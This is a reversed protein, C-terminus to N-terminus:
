LVVAVDKRWNLWVKRPQDFGTGSGNINQSSVAVPREVGDITVYFHSREGLYAANQLFGSVSHAAEPDHADAMQLKEPRIAVQVVDGVGYTTQRKPAVIEGLGKTDITLDSGSEATVVGDFFNMTGIFSAVERNHPTEYLGTPTDLQLLKGGQMVAIRDSMTLAEEQDHTVFVFTIGITRQLARLELQMQERLQKDLAGLPEDLLLVKPRLILARALAIRQRQGGSLETAKRDGYGPLAILDLMEDVMENRKARPLKQKRLGYAINERVNLHPFIAYNQFVINVPREHPPVDSMPQGDIYIEGSTPNEFGALMRLLTTKGCGSAGLLSFFEGHAIDISINEIAQFSGFMKKVNRVSIFADNTM